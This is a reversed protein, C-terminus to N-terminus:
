ELCCDISKMILNKMESSYHYKPCFYSLLTEIKYRMNRNDDIDSSSNNNFLPVLTDVNQTIRESLKTNEEFCPSVESGAILLDKSMCEVTAHM